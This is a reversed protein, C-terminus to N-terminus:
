LLDQRRFGPVPDRRFVADWRESEPFPHSARRSQTALAQHHVVERGGGVRGGAGRLQDGDAGHERLRQEVAVAEDSDDGDAPVGGLVRKGVLVLFEEAEEGGLGGDGDLVGPDVLGGHAPLGLQLCEESRRAGDHGAQIELFDQVPNDGLRMADRPGRVNLDHQEVLGGADEADARGSPRRM